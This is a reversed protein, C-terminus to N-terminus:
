SYSFNNIHLLNLFFYFYFFLFIFFYFFVVIFILDVMFRHFIGDTRNPHFIRHLSCLSHNQDYTDSTAFPPFSSGDLTKCTCCNWQTMSFRTAIPLFTRGHMINPPLLDLFISVHFRKQQHFCKRAAGMVVCASCGVVVEGQMAEVVM